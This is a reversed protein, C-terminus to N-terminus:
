HDDADISRAIPLPRNRGLHEHSSVWDGRIVASSLSTEGALVVAACIEALKHVKGPGACGMMELCERQTALDTGGGVTAVILSTLTMSWYYDGNDLLQTYTVGAHSEAINAVDQGTAIFMATLGNAAQAGNNASGVLFSGAMQIQRAWFLTETDVGMIQRLLDRNITAEAVVRKGRTELMNIRSHKKDTDINGSLLYRAKGPFHEEIWTCAALTAKGTMNQGAADGTTYNFRLYRLPGVSYQRIDRLAGFGTTSEAVKRVDEIHEDVWHGFERAERADDLVFAPARQMADDVVTTKVGGSETLLRMGRNYSAVLTGETTALPVYFEGKAHEGDIRLPGAIGIPVQAVGTFQEINGRVTAPDFSYRAVHTLATGTREVVFRRRAAALEETSDDHRDRPIHGSPPQAPDAM